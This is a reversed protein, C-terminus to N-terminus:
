GEEGASAVAGAVDVLIGDFLKFSGSAAVREGGALGTLVVVEDGVVPGTRVQRVFARTREDETQELVYVHDGAPGRRLASVPVMVVKTRAGVPVRVRVSAGPALAPPAADIRARVAANRTTPDVRADVASVRAALVAADDEGVTVEVRDGVSLRAAVAQAVAFDVDVAEDVGQLTTLLTGIDLFQGVHVDAIGVRARFPARITKREIIARLRAIEAQAIDSEARSNDREIASVAQREALREYRAQTARALQARAALAELEATEVSVDLAVLVDGREVIRGPELAVRRVTGPVENRLTISRTALVTGIATTTNTHDREVAAAATIREMPEPQGASAAQAETADAIKWVTLAVGLLGVLVLLVASRVAPRSGRDNRTM